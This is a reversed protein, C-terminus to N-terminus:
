LSHRTQSVWKPADDIQQRLLLNLQATHHQVHRTNYIMLEAVSFDKREFNCHKLLGEESIKNLKERAKNRGYELYKLMEEKTYVREPLVGAPDLESLNFPEPPKFGANTDSLYYDLFFLTHYTMYWFEHFGSKNGWVKEPCANIAKELSDIAAGLQNWLIHKLDQDM